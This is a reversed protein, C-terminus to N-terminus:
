LAEAHKEAHELCVLDSKMVATQGDLVCGYAAMNSMFLMRIGVTLHIASSKNPLCFNGFQSLYM